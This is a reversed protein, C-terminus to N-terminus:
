KEVVTRVWAKAEQMTMPQLNHLVINNNRVVTFPETVSYGSRFDADQFHNRISVRWNRSSDKNGSHELSHILGIAKGGVVIEYKYIMDKALMRMRKPVRFTLRNIIEAASKSELSPTERIQVLRKCIDEWRIKKLFKILDLVIFTTADMYRIEKVKKDSSESELSEDSDSTESDTAEADADVTENEADGESDEDDEGEESDAEDKEEKAKEKEKKAADEEKLEEVTKIKIDEPVKFNAGTYSDVFKQVLLHIVAKFQEEGMFTQLEKLAVMLCAKTINIFIQKEKEDLEGGGENLKNFAQNMRNINMPSLSKDIIEICLDPSSYFKGLLPNLKALLALAKLRLDREEPTELTQQRPITKM